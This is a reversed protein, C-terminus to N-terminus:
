TFAVVDLTSENVDFCSRSRVGRWCCEMGGMLVQFLLCEHSVNVGQDLFSVVL